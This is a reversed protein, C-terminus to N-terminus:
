SPSKKRFCNVALLRETNEGFLKMTSTRSPELYAESIHFNLIFSSKCYIMSAILVALTCSLHVGEGQYRLNWNHCSTSVYVFLNRLM